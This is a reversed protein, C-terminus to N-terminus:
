NRVGTVIFGDVNNGSVNYSSDAPVPVITSTGSAEAPVFYMYYTYNDGKYELPNETTHSRLLDIYEEMCLNNDTIYGAHPVGVYRYTRRRAAEVTIEDKGEPFRVIFGYKAANEKFWEYDGEADFYYSSSGDQPFVALDFTKGTHYDSHGPEFVSGGGYYRTSQEEYSHYGDVVWLDSDKRGTSALFSEMLTDLRKITDADLETVMDKVNYFSSKNGYLPLLSIDGEPFKYEVDKNVLVLNGKYIDDHDHIEDKFATKVASSAPQSTNETSSESTDATDTTDGSTNGETDGETSDAATSAQSASTDPSKKTKAFLAQTCSTVVLLMAALILVAAIIRDYRVKFRRRNRRKDGKTM